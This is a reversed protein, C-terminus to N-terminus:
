FQIDNILNYYEVYLYQTRRSVTLRGRMWIFDSRITELDLKKGGLTSTTRRRLCGLAIALCHSSNVRTVVVRRDVIHASWRVTPTVNTPSTRVVVLKPRRQSISEWRVPIAVWYVNVCWKILEITSGIWKLILTLLV